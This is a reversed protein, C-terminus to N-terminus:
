RRLRVEVPTLLRLPSPSPRGLTKAARTPPRHWLTRGEDRKALAFNLPDRLLKFTRGADNQTFRRELRDVYKQAAAFAFYDGTRDARAQLARALRALLARAPALRLVKAGDAASVVRGLVLLWHDNVSHVARTVGAHAEGSRRTQLGRASLMLALGDLVGVILAGLLM